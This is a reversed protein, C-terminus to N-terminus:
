ARRSGLRRLEERYAAQVVELGLQRELKRIGFHYRAVTNFHDLFAANIAAGSVAGLLPLGQALFKESVVVNFQGAIRAVLRALIPASERALAEAVQQASSRALFQAAEGLLDVLALRAMLYASEGGETPHSGLGLVSLAELRGAPQRMDEGFEAAIAAISRFMVATTVPLELALGAYGLAGGGAGTAVGAMRHWFGAWRSGADAQELPRDAEAPAATSEAAVAIAQLLSRQVIRTVPEPVLRRAANELPRGALGALRIFWSPRELYRAADRLFAAEASGALLVEM